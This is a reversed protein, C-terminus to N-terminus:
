GHSARALRRACFPRRRINVAPAAYYDSADSWAVIYGGDALASPYFPSLWVADVGLRALHGLRSRIGTIDGFGDGDSDAWSKPYVQYIVANRWWDADTTIAM